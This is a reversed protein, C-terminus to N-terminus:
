HRQDCGEYANCWCPSEREDIHDGDVIRVNNLDTVSAIASPAMVALTVVVMTVIAARDNATQRGPHDEAAHEAVRVVPRTVIARPSVVAGSSKIAWSGVITRSWIIAVSAIIAASGIIARSGIIPGSGIIAGSCIIAVPLLTQFLTVQDAGAV